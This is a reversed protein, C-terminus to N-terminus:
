RGASRGPAAPGDSGPSTRVRQDYRAQRDRRCQVCTSGDAYRRAAGPLTLDHGHDCETRDHRWHRRRQVMDDSNQQMTGPYLHERRICPPNDCSHLAKQEGDLLGEVILLWRGVRVHNYIAYGHENVRGRWEWCGSPTVDYGVHEIAEHVTRARPPMGPYHM